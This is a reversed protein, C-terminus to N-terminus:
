DPWRTSCLLPHFPPPFFFFERQEFAILNRLKSCTTDDVSFAPIELTGDGFSIKLRYPGYYEEPTAKKKFRVGAEHLETASPLTTYLESFRRQKSGGFLASWDRFLILYVMGLFPAFIIGMVKKMLTTAQRWCSRQLPHDPVLEPDQSLCFLHLFHKIKEEEPYKEGALRISFRHLFLSTLDPVKSKLGPFMDVIKQYLKKVVFFPIQNELLLLNRMMAFYAGGQHLFMLQYATTDDSLGSSCLAVVFCGDIVLMEVFEDDSLEIKELYEDRVPRLCDSVEGLFIDLTNDPKGNLMQCLVELKFEEMPLLESKGQHLPGVSVM